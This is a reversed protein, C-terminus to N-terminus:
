KNVNSAPRIAGSALWDMFMNIRGSDPIHPEKLLEDRVYQEVRTSLYRVGEEHGKNYCPLKDPLACGLVADDPVADDGPGAAKLLDYNRKAAIRKM